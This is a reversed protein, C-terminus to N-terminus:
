VACWSLTAFLGGSLHSNPRSLSSLVSWVQAFGYTYVAVLVWRDLDLLLTM